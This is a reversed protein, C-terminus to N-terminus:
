PACGAGELLIKGNSEIAKLGLTETIIAIIEDQSENNFGVTLRCFKLGPSLEIQKSYVANLQRVVHFLETNNFNFVRTKYALVNEEPQEITFKKLQKDYVGKAGARLYVGADGTTYFMVEGESVVVEITQSDAPAKVNFATGIDRILVGEIDVVFKKADDHKISFYAEGKLEVRREDSKTDYVYRITSQKNLFINSGDPLTDNVTENHSSVVIPTTLENRQSFFYVSALITLLLGAAIRWYLSRQRGPAPFQVVRDDQKLGKKVRVWAADTDFQHLNKAESVRSFITSVQDIYQRNAPDEEKWAEVYATEEQSAEGALFKAILEDIQEQDKRV